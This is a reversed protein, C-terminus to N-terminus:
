ICHVSAIDHFQVRSVQIIKNVLTVGIFKISSLVELSGELLLKQQMQVVLQSLELLPLTLLAHTPFHM